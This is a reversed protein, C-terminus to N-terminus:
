EVALSYEIQNGPIVESAPMDTRGETDINLQVEFPRKFDDETVPLDIRRRLDYYVALHEKMASIEKGDADVLRCNLMGLYSVNGRNTLDIMVQVLSDSADAEAKLLEVQSSLDGTRYKLSIATQLITNIRASIMGEPVEAPEPPKSTESRVVVHAWYEGDPLDSPPSAVFRVTQEAGPPLVVRRPFPRIWEAASRPDTIVSDQLQLYVQGLSDSQIVGFNMRVSVEAPEPGPNRLLMRGTRKQESLVIVTPAVLVGALLDSLPAALLLCCLLIGRWGSMGPRRPINDSYKM